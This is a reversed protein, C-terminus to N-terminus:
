TRTVEQLTREVLKTDVAADLKERLVKETALLVIGVLEQKAEHLLASQKESLRMDAEAIMAEIKSKTQALMDADRRKGTAEALSVIARAEERAAALIEKEEALSSQLKTRAAEADALGQEIKKAREDLYSLIPRYAFRKLLWLLVLFNVAQAALLKWDIGLKALVEM